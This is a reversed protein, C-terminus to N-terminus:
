KRSGRTGPKYQREEIWQLIASRLFRVNSQIKVYPLLGRKVYSYITKVNIRLLEEVERATMLEKPDLTAPVPDRKAKLGGAEAPTRLSTAGDPKVGHLNGEGVPAAEVAYETGTVRNVQRVLECASDLIPSQPLLIIQDVAVKIMQNQPESVLWEPMTGAIKQRLRQIEVEAKRARAVDPIQATNLADDFDRCAAELERQYNKLLDRPTKNAPM